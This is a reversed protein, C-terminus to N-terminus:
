FKLDYNYKQMLDSFNNEILKIQKDSLIKKWQNKKGERFFLGNVKEEFGNIEEMKKLTNFNTSNLINTIKNEINNFKFNYNQEFFNIISLLAEKKKYVIDEYRLILKPCKFKIDIWSICNNKWNSIFSSPM